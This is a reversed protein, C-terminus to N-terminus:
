TDVDINPLIIINPTNNHCEPVRKNIKFLILYLRHSQKLINYKVVPVFKKGTYGDSRM